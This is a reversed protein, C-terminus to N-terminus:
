KASTPRKGAAAAAGAPSPADLIQIQVPVNVEMGVAKPSCRPEGVRGRVEMTKGILV